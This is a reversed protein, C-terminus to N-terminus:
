GAVVRAGHAFPTAHRADEAEAKAREADRDVLAIEDAAGTLVLASATAGGVMGDGVIGVKM